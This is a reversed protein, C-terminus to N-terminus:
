YGFCERDVEISIEEEQIRQGCEPCQYYTLYDQYWVRDTGFTHHICGESLSHPNGITIELYQTQVGDNECVPANMNKEDIEENYENRLNTMVSSIEALFNDLLANTYSLDKDAVYCQSKEGDVVKIRNNDYIYLMYGNDKNELLMLLGDTGNIYDIKSYNASTIEQMMEDYQPVIWDTFQKSRAYYTDEDLLEQNDAKTIDTFSESTIDFEDFELIDKIYVKPLNGVINPNSSALNDGIEKSVNVNETTCGVLLMLTFIVALLKKM